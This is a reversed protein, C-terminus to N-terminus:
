FACEGSHGKSSSLLKRGLSTATIFCNNRGRYVTKPGGGYIKCPAAPTQTSRQHLYATFAVNLLRRLTFVSNKPHFLSSVMYEFLVRVDKLQSSAGVAGLRRTTRRADERESTKGHRFKFSFDSSATKIVGASHTSGKLPRLRLSVLRPGSVAGPDSRDLGTRLWM